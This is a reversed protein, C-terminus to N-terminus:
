RRRGPRAVPRAGVPDGRTRLRAGHAGSRRRRADHAGPPSANWIRGHAARPRQHAGRCRARRAPAAPRAGARLEGGAARGATQADVADSAGWAALDLALPALDAELIEPPTAPELSRTAEEPWLRYCVGPATRGARGRRQDAAARSVRTTVLGTMGTVPDFRARRAFGSDIVVRVGDITLSTEAIATALVVKRRGAPAPALAADQAGPPLSGFLAHVDAQEPLGSEDLLRRTRHIEPAGPLFCLIDGTEEALAARIARAVDRPLSALDTRPLHRTEVPHTRGASSLVPAGDLLASVAGTDLTASMVLLKLDERLTSRADLCFALGVDANLSREHFEDFIVLGIGELAPDTQLMRTLIGETVVTLRTDASVRHDLRTIYGVRGGVPEGLLAAMRTAIARAALRRPELMLIASRGLWPAELLALPAATSKGAGPPAELVVAQAEGLAAVLRPLLPAIPLTQISAPLSVPPAYRSACVAQRDGRRGAQM